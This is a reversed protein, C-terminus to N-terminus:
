KRSGHDGQEKGENPNWLSVRKGKIKHSDQNKMGRYWINIPSSSLRPYQCRVLSFLFVSTHVLFVHSILAYLQTPLKTEFIGAQFSSTTTSM